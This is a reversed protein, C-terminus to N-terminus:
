TESDREAFQISEKALPPVGYGYEFSYKGTRALELNFHTWQEGSANTFGTRLQGLLDLLDVSLAAMDLARGEALCKSIYKEYVEGSHVYYEYHLQYNTWQSPLEEALALVVKQQAALLESPQPPPPAGSGGAVSGPQLLRRLFRLM